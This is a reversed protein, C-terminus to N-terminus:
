LVRTGPVAYSSPSWTGCAGPGGHAPPFTTFRGHVYSGWHEFRPDGTERPLQFAIHEDPHRPRRDCPPSVWPYRYVCAQSAHSGPEYMGGMIAAVEPDSAFYFM